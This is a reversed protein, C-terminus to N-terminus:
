VIMRRLPATLDSYRTHSSASTRSSSKKTQRSVMGRLTSRLAQCPQCRRSHGSPTVVCLVTCDTRRITCDYVNGKHDSFPTRVIEAVVDGSGKAGRVVGNKEQCAAIFVDEPNGICMYSQDIATIFDLARQENSFQLSRFVDCTDPVM